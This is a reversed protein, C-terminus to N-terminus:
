FLGITFERLKEKSLNTKKLITSQYKQIEILGFDPLYFTHTAFAELYKDHGSILSSFLINADVVFSRM